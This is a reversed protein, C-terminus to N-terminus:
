VVGVLGYCIYTVLAMSPVMTAFGVCVFVGLGYLCTGLITCASDNILRIEPNKKENM